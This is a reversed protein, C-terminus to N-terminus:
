SVGAGAGGGGAVGGGAAGGALRTAIEKPTAERVTVQAKFDGRATTEWLRGAVSSLDAAGLGDGALVWGKPAARMVRFGIEKGNINKPFSSTDLGLSTGEAVTLNTILQHSKDVLTEKIVPILQVLLPVGSPGM